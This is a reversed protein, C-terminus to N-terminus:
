IIGEIEVQETDDLTGARVVIMNPREKAESFLRFNLALDKWFM